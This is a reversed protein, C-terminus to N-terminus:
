CMADAQLQTSPPQLKIDHTTLKATCYQLAISYRLLQTTIPLAQQVDLMFWADHPNLQVMEELNERVKELNECIETTVSM